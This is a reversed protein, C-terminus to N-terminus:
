IKSSHAESNLADFLEQQKQLLKQKEDKEVILARQMWSYNEWVAKSIHKPRRNDIFGKLEGASKMGNKDYPFFMRWIKARTEKEMTRKM